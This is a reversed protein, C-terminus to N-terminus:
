ERYWRLEADLRDLANYRERAQGELEQRWRIFYSFVLTLPLAFAFVFRSRPSRLVRRYTVFRSSAGHPVEM